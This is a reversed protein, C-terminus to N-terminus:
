RMKGACGSPKKMLIRLPYYRTIEATIAFWNWILLLKCKFSCM